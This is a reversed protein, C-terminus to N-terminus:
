RLYVVDANNESPVFGFQINFAEDWYVKGVTDMNTFYLLSLLGLAFLIIMLRM